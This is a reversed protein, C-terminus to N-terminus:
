FQLGTHLLRLVGSLGINNRLYLYMNITGDRFNKVRCTKGGISVNLNKGTDLLHGYLTFLTGGSMPGISPKIATVKPVQLLILSGKVTM